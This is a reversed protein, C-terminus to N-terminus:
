PQGEDSTDQNIHEMISQLKDQLAGADISTDEPAAEVQQSQTESGPAPNAIDAFPDIVIPNIGDVLDPETADDENMEADAQESLEQNLGSTDADPNVPEALATDTSGTERIMPEPQMAEDMSEINEPLETNLGPEEIVAEDTSLESVEDMSRGQIITLEVRRNLARNEVSDNPALPHADGHGEVAFRTEELQSNQLLEHVVTVARSSSLEWNSRFRHTKIPVNDTHGAVVVEGDITQLSNRLKGIVPLFDSKLDSSGSPFSGKEEIRIVIKNGQTEISVIGQEIEPAMAQLLKMADAETKENVQEAAKDPQEDEDKDLLEAIQEEIEAVLKSVQEVQPNDEPQIESVVNALQKLEENMEQTLEALRELEGDEGGQEFLDNEPPDSDTHRQIPATESNDDTEGAESNKQEQQEVTADTFELTTRTEDITNQRIQIIPTPTPRGPSFERAIMSTGKPPEETKIQRQVGFAVKMSGAIQKFKLLDMESFSLLLVFFCMLLSMLDAFTMVWAPAGGGEDKKQPTGDNM